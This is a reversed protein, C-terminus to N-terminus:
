LVTVIQLQLLLSTFESAPSSENNLNMVLYCRTLAYCGFYNAIQQSKKDNFVNNCLPAFPIFGYTVSFTVIQLVTASLACETAAEKQELSTPIQLCIERRM